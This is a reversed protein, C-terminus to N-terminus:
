LGGQGGSQYEVTCKEGQYSVTLDGPVVEEDADITCGGVTASTFLPSEASYETITITHTSCGSLAMLSIVVWVVWCCIVLNDAKLM